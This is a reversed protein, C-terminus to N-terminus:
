PPWETNADRRFVRRSPAAGGAGHNVRRAPPTPLLALRHYRGDPRLLDPSRRDLPEPQSTPSFALMTFADSRHSDVLAPSGLNEAGVLAALRALVSVLDRPAPAPPQWLGQQGPQTRIPHASVAVRTVAAGPPHAELDLIVLTLIPKVEVVPYALSVARAHHGGTALGLRVELADAVLAASALRKCLRELVTELVG